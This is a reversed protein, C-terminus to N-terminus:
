SKHNDFRDPYINGVFAKTYLDIIDSYIQKRENKDLNNLLYNMRNEDKVSVGKNKKYYRLCKKIFEVDAKSLNKLIM